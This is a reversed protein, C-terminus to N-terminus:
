DERTTKDKKKRCAPNTCSEYVETSDEDSGSTYMRGVGCVDCTAMQYAAYVMDRHNQKAEKISEAFSEVISDSTTRFHIIKNRPRRPDVIYTVFGESGYSWALDKGPETIVVLGIKTVTEIRM